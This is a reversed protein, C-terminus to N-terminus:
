VAPESPSQRPAPWRAKPKRALTYSLGAAIVLLAVNCGLAGAFAHAYSSTDPASGVLSFFVGGVVAVGLAAGIQFTSVVIGSALGAHRSDVGGLVVQIISPMVVGFGCGAVILAPVVAFDFRLTAALALAGFGLAQVLFGLTLARPGLRAMIRSAAFSVLFYGIGFPLTRRGAEMPSMHLGNQLYISFTLYFASLMYYLLAMLVGKAFGPERFVGLEVLPSGGRSTVSKEFRVFALLSACSAALMAMTWGPWGHERGEVL